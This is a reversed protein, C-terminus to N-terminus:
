IAEMVKAVENWLWGRKTFGISEKFDQYDHYDYFEYPTGILSEVTLHTTTGTGGFVANAFIL